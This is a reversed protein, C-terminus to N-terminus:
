NAVLRQAGVGCDEDIRGTEVFPALGAKAVAENYLTFNLAFVRGLYARGLYLGPRIMRVEDRVQLGRRGALYDPNERYGEIEDTFAYDIILSERRSDLLSQGCYLKAPFLLWADKGDFTTKMFGDPELGLAAKLLMRDRILNRLVMKDRYFVKGKWIAEGLFDLKTALLRVGLGNVGGLIEGARKLGGGKAFVISGEYAGDPIPGATLRAYIQDIQEQTMRNFDAPSLSALESRSLPLDHELRAFDPKTQYDDEHPSFRIKAERRCGGTAIGAAVLVWVAVWRRVGRSTGSDAEDAM